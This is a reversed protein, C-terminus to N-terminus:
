FCKISFRVKTTSTAVRQDSTATSYAVSVADFHGDQEVRLHLVLNRVEGAPIAAGKLASRSAWELGQPMHDQRPPWGRVSGLLTNGVPVAFADVIEAGHAGVLAVSGVTVPETGENTLPQNGFTYDSNPSAPLCLEAKDGGAILPGDTPPPHQCAAVMITGSVAVLARYASSRRLRQRHGGRVM